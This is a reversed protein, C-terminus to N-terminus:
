NSAPAPFIWESRGRDDGRAGISFDICMSYVRQATQLNFIEYMHARNPLRESNSFEMCMSEFKWQTSPDLIGYVNVHDASEGM